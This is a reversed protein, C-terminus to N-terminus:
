DNLILSPLIWSPELGSASCVEEPTRRSTQAERGANGTLVLASDIGVLSAGKIDTELTDGVMVIKKVGEMRELGREFILPYPKGYYYVEGGMQEYLYAFFGACHRLKEGHIAERDPNACVFPKKLELCERLFQDYLHVDEEPDVYASFLIFDSGGLDETEQISLGELLDKNRDKGMHYFKPGLKQFLPAQPTAMDERLLDGSTLVMKVKLNIGLEKLKEYNLSGPRPSNSLFLVKKGLSIIKNLCEVAGPYAKVGDHVVGWLDIFFGDYLPILEKFDQTFKM